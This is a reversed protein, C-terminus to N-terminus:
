FCINVLSQKLSKDQYSMYCFISALGFNELLSRPQVCASLWKTQEPYKWVVCSVQSSNKREMSCSSAKSASRQLNSEGSGILRGPIASPLPFFCPDSSNIYTLHVDSIFKCFQFLNFGFSYNEKGNHRGPRDLIM